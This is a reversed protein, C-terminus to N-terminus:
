QKCDISFPFKEFEYMSLLLAEMSLVLFDTISIYNESNFEEKIQSHKRNTFNREDSIIPPYTLTKKIHSENKNNIKVAFSTKIYNNAPTPNGAISM